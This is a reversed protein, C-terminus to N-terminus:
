QRPYFYNEGRKMRNVKGNNDMEFICLEGFGKEDTMRFVNDKVPTLPTLANKPNEEPPYDEDYIVLQGRIELVECEWNWPDVYRGLYNKWLPDFEVPEEDKAMIGKVIPAILDYARDIFLSPSGDDCNIMVVVGFKEDTCFSIQSKYGGVWGSHAVVVRDGKKRVSFGLGWGSIWDPRLWQVRHMEDLTGARLLPEGALNNESLHFSIYKALDVVTSSMNAASTLGKSDTFPMEKRTGDPLRRGYGKALVRFQKTSLNVSSNTMALPELIHEIIYDEYEVGSVTRVVEGLLAMGLNSYSYKSEAPYLMEQNPLSSKIQEMTPFIHDTWYPFAAEPPLGSTHTLLQRITIEPAEPFPNRIEFWPIHKRIPDDLNLKGADRLQLIATSTFTKTISAIRYVTEPTAMQKKECDAYGFGNSYVMEQDYVLAISLGPIGFYEIQNEIWSEFLALNQRFEDSETITSGYTKMSIIIVLLVLILWCKKRM